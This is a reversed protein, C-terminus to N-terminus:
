CLSRNFLVATVWVIFKALWAKSNLIDLKLQLILCHHADSPNFVVPFFTSIRSFSPMIAPMGGGWCCIMGRPPTLSAKIELQAVFKKGFMKWQRRRSTQCERINWIDSGCSDWTSGSSAVRFRDFAANMEQVISRRRYEVAFSKDPCVSM